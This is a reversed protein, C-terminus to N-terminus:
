DARGLCSFRDQHPDRHRGESALFSLTAGLKILAEKFRSCDSQNHTHFPRLFVQHTHELVNTGPTEGEEDKTRSTM